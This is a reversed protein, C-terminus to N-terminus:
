EENEINKPCMVFFVKNGHKKVVMEEAEVCINWRMNANEKLSAILADADDTEFLYGVFAISGIMPAFTVGKTFGTIENDFGALYGEEVELAMCNFLISPHSVLEQAIEDISMDEANEEFVAALTNGLTAETAEETPETADNGKKTCAAFSMVTIIALILALIKKM